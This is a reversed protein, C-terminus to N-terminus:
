KIEYVMEYMDSACIYCTLYFYYKIQIKKEEKPTGLSNGLWSSCLKWPEKKNMYMHNKQM